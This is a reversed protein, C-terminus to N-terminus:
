HIRQLASDGGDFVLLAHTTADYAITAPASLSAATGVGNLIGWRGATGVMTSLQRSALVLQRV